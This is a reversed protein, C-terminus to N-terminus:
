CAIGLAPIFATSAMLNDDPIVFEDVIEGRAVLEGIGDNRDTRFHSLESILLFVIVAIDKDLTILESGEINGQEIGNGCFSDNEALIINDIVIVKLTPSLLGELELPAGIDGNESIM